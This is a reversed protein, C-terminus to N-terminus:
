RILMIEFHGGDVLNHGLFKFKNENVVNEQGYVCLFHPSKIV